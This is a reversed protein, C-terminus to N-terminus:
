QRDTKKFKDTKKIAAAVNLEVYSLGCIIVIEILFYITGTLTLLPYYKILVGTTLACYLLNAIGILRIFLTYRGKLFLFCTAAYICFCIATVSLCTLAKEPIGFYENFQRMIVFLFFATALAGLSDVLFLSKPKQVFYNILKNIINNM